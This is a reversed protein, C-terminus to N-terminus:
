KKLVVSVEIELCIRKVLDPTLIGKDKEHIIVEVIPDKEAKAKKEREALVRKREKLAEPKVKIRLNEAPDPAEKLQAKQEEINQSMREDFESKRERKYKKTIGLGIGLEIDTKILGKEKLEKIRQAEAEKLQKLQERAEQARLEHPEVM